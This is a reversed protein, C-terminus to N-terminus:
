EKLWMDIDKDIDIKFDYNIGIDIKFDYNIDTDINRVEAM